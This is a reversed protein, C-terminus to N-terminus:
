LIKALATLVKLFMAPAIIVASAIAIIAITTLIIKANKFSSIFNKTREWLSPIEIDDHLKHFAIIDCVLDKKLTILENLSDCVVESFLHQNIELRDNIFVIFQLLEVHDPYKASLNILATHFEKNDSGLVEIQSNFDRQLNELSQDIKELGKM